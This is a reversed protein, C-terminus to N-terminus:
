IFKMAKKQAKMMGFKPYIRGAGLAYVIVQGPERIQECQKIMEDMDPIKENM